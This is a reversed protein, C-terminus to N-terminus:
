TRCPNQDRHQQEREYQAEEVNRARSQDRKKECDKERVQHTGQHRLQLAHKLSATPSDGDDVREQKRQDDTEVAPPEDDDPPVLFPEAGHQALGPGGRRQEDGADQKNEEERQAHCQTEGAAFQGRDLTVQGTRRQPRRDGREVRVGARGAGVVGRWPVAPM